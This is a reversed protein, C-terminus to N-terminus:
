KAPEYRVLLSAAKRPVSLEIGEALERGSLTRTTVQRSEDVFEVRYQTAPEVGRLGVQMSGYASQAHRFAMAVGANLDARHFQMATWGASDLSAKALPYFDGYWFKRCARAEAIAAQAEPLSFDKGLFDFQCILGGSMVSRTTYADPTWSCGTYLPVYLALGLTQRQDWEPHGPRCCTDSRWLPVSRMCTELDIRRGGSACNDIWLGPHRSRLEDWMAYHGEVYRIETIGQRDPPDSARWFALPDMNFDNRYVTVHFEDILNSLTETLTKRAEPDNLKYLGGGAGGFVFQPQERAIKTDPAVREPEFWLIFQMNLEKCLDGMPAMGRPFRELDAFWNGVGNPFAKPFWAADYWYADCGAEHILRVYKLQTAETTWTPLPTMSFYRDFCQGAIPLSLPRGDPQKPVFSFLMLRRFRNHAAIRDGKWPVILVRPGRVREGPHLLFLTKEMGATLRTPGTAARDLLASWQGSWGVAAIIGEDGYQFNFFPFTGNSSRGGAPTMAISKGAALPTEIPLYSQEDCRDGIIQHLVAPQKADDTRLTLDLTKIDELIPTDGAGDNQFYLVWDVAPYRKFVRMVAEVKLGTKPDKWTYVHAVHDAAESTSETKASDKLLEASAVGGYRFSFPMQPALLPPRSEQAPRAGSISEALWDAVAAVEDPSAM